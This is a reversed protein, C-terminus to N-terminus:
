EADKLIEWPRSQLALCLKELTDIRIKKLGREIGSYYTREMGSAAAIAQQTIKLEARRRKLARGVRLPFPTPRM